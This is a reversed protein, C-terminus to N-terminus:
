VPEWRINAIEDRIIDDFVLQGEPTLFFLRYYNRSGSYEGDEIIPKRVIDVCCYISHPEPWHRVFGKDTKECLLSSAWQRTGYLDPDDIKWRYLKGRKFFLYTM